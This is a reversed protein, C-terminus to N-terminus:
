GAFDGLVFGPFELLGGDRFRFTATYTGGGSLPGFSVANIRTEGLAFTEVGYNAKVVNGASDVVEHNPLGRSTEDVRVNYYNPGIRMSYIVVLDGAATIYSHLIDLDMSEDSDCSANDKRYCSYEGYVQGMLNRSLDRGEVKFTSLKGNAVEFDSYTIRSETSESLIRGNEDLRATVLPERKFVQGEASASAIAQLYDRQYTAYALASGTSLKMAAEYGVRTNKALEEFYPLALDDPAVPKIQDGLGSSCSTLGIACIVLLRVVKLNMDLVSYGLRSSM